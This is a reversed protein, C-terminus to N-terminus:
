WLIMDAVPPESVYFKNNNNIKFYPGFCGRMALKFMNFKERPNSLVLLISLRSDDNIHDIKKSRRFKLVLKTM